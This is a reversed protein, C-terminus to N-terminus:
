RLLSRLLVQSLSFVATEDRGSMILKVRLPRKVLETGVKFSEYHGDSCQDCLEGSFCIIILYRQGCDVQSGTSQVASVSEM